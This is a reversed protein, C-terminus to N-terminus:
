RNRIRLLQFAGCPLNPKEGRVAFAKKEKEEISNAVQRRPYGLINCKFFYELRRMAIFAQDRYKMSSVRSLKLGM